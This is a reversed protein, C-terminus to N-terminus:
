RRVPPGSDRGEPEAIIIGDSDIAALQRRVQDVYARGTVIVPPRGGSVRAMRAVTRQFLSQEGILDIFPKPNATTSEPWLRSGPGGCLIISYVSM